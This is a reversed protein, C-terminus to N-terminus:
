DIWGCDFLMPSDQSRASGARSIEGPVEVVACNGQIWRAIDPKQQPLGLVYRLEDDELMEVFGDLDVLEDSGTFGGFTFVPSGTALIFPAAGRATNTALLYSGPDTSAQVYALIAEGDPGLLEQNPTMFTSASMGDAGATPLAVDPNTNLATLASWTVPAVMLATAALAIGVWRLGSSVRPLLLAMGALWSVVAVATVLGFTDPHHRLTFVEFAVTFGSLVL